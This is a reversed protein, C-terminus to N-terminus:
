RNLDKAAFNYYGVGVCNLKCYDSDNTFKQYQDVLDGNLNNKGFKGTCLVNGNMDVSGLSGLAGWGVDRGLAVPNTGSGEYQMLLHQDIVMVM